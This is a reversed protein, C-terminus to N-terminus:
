KDTRKKRGFVRNLVRELFGPPFLYNLAQKLFHAVVMGTTLTVMAMAFQTAQQAATFLGVVTGFTAWGANDLSQQM